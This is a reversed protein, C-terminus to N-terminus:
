QSTSCQYLSQLQLWLIVSKSEISNLIFSDLISRCHILHLPKIPHHCLRESFIIGDFRFHDWNSHSSIRHTVSCCKQLQYFLFILSKASDNRARWLKLMSIGSQHITEVLITIWWSLYLFSPNEINRGYTRAWWRRRWM